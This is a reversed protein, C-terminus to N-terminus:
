LPMGSAAAPGNLMSKVLSNLSPSAVNIGITTLGLAILVLLDAKAFAAAALGFACFLWPLAVHRIREGTRDSSRAWLMMTAMGALYPLAVIFGIARNSYGMAQIIQPLWLGIGYSALLNGGFALGLAYLRLDLLTSWFPSQEVTREVAFRSAITQKEEAELWRADAPSGPLFKLVVFALVIPPFGELLFLWQWGRLHLIGDMGLILSALPGGIVFSFPIALQFAAIQRALYAQPFWQTLYIIIAPWFGAEAAGLLFRLVYFSTTGQIFAHSTSLVGWAALIVFVWRRAGVRQLVWNAPVGFFAFSVFFIGAGFGFERSSFELDANMTLAAFGVNVRDIFNVLYLLAMFPVLRWACKLFIQQENM